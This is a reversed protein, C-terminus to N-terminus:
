KDSHKSKRELRLTDMDTLCQTIDYGDAKTMCDLICTADSQSFGQIRLWATSDNYNEEIWRATEVYQPTSISNMQQKFVPATYIDQFADNYNYPDAMFTVLDIAADVQSGNKNVMLMSLNPGEFTGQEPYGMFAPMLGLTSTDGKFDTYIWTDWCLMMAYEGSSMALSMGDWDNEMFDEGLFGEEAMTRYWEIVTRMEPLDAYGILDQNIDDLRGSEKIITDLPFQYLMMTPAGCPLYLPTIGHDQLTKCTQIFEKQDRPPTIGLKKFIEKNYLTGSISVEWYPLGIVKGHYIAQNISTDTLDDVWKADSFDFFNEEPNFADINTGGFSLLLDFSSDKSQLAAWVKEEMQEAPYSETVVKNGTFEEYRQFARKIYSRNLDESRGWVRLTRGSVTGWQYLPAEFVPPESPPTEAMRTCGCLFICLVSLILHLFFYKKGM